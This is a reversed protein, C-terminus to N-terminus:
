NREHKKRRKLDKEFDSNVQWFGEDWDHKYERLKKNMRKAMDYSSYLRAQLEKKLDEQPIVESIEYMERIVECITVFECVKGKISKEYKEVLEDIQM